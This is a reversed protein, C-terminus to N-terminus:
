RGYSASQVYCRSVKSIVYAWGLGGAENQWTKCVHGPTDRGCPQGRDVEKVIRVQKSLFGDMLGSV